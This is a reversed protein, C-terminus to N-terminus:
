RGRLGSLAPVVRCREFRVRDAAAPGAASFGARRLVALSAVGRREVHAVLRRVGPQALAWGALLRVAETAYGRGEYDPLLAYGLEVEGDAGPPGHFGGVGIATWRPGPGAERPLLWYWLGWGCPEPARRLLRAQAALAAATGAPPWCRPLRADLARALATGGATAAMAIAASPARLLLRPSTLGLPATLM